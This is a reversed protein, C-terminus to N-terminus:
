TQPGSTRAKPHFMNNSLIVRLLLHLVFTPQAWVCSASYCVLYVVITRSIIWRITVGCLESVSCGLMLLVIYSPNGGVLAGIRWFRGELFLQWQQSQQSNLWRSVHRSALHLPLWGSPSQRQVIVHLESLRDPSNWQRQLLGPSSPSLLSDGGEGGCVYYYGDGYFHLNFGFFRNFVWDPKIFAHMLTSFNRRWFLQDPDKKSFFVSAWAMPEIGKMWFSEQHDANIGIFLQMNWQLIHKKTCMRLNAPTKFLRELKSRLSDCLYIMAGVRINCHQHPQPLWLIEVM